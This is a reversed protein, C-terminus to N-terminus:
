INRKKRNKLTYLIQQDRKLNVVNEEAWELRSDLRKMEYIKIKLELIGMQNKKITKMERDFNEMWYKMIIMNGKLNKLIHIVVAKFDKDALEVRQSM